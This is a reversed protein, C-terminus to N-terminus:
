DLHSLDPLKDAYFAMGFWVWNQPYYGLDARINELDPNYLKTIKKKYIEEALDPKTIKFYALLAGYLSSSEGQKIVRGDHTYTGYLQGHKEWEAALFTLRDLYSKARPDRHWQWDLAVRWLVRFADDSFNTTKDPHISPGVAASLPDLGAWDPPLGVSSTKDLTQWTVKDLIEYSTNKLGLWDHGPDYYAFIPYSAPSFYSPNITPRTEGPAWNGAVLYPRGAIIIVEKAWIDALIQRAQKLYYDDNWRESAFILALAIDQDADAATNRGGIEELVGWRGSANEGWLWHFLNDEERKQLNNKTWKYVRDFIERDDMWVARLLSYSQGESTTLYNRDRDITRGDEQITDRYVLWASEVAAGQYTTLFVSSEPILQQGFMLLLGVLVSLLFIAALLLKNDSLFKKTKEM